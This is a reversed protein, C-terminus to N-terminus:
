KPWLVVCNEIGGDYCERDDSDYMSAAIEDLSSFGNGEPDRSLVVLHDQPMVLLQKILEQITM